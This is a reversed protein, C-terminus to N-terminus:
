RNAFDQEDASLRTYLGNDPIMIYMVNSEIQLPRPPPLSLNVLHTPHLEWRPERLPIVPKNVCVKWLRTRLYSRIIYKARHLSTRTHLGVRILVPDFWGRSVHLPLPPLGEKGGRWVM